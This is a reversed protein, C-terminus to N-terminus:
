KLIKYSLSQYKDKPKKSKTLRMLDMNERCAATSMPLFGLFTDEGSEGFPMMVDAGVTTLRTDRAHNPEM